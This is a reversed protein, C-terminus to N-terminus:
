SHKKQLQLDNFYVKTHFVFCLKNFQKQNVHSPDKLEEECYFPQIWPQIWFMM